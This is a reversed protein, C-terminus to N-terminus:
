NGAKVKITVTATKSDDKTSTAKIVIEAAAEDSAITLKHANDGTGFTSVMRLM